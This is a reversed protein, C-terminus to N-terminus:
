RRQMEESLVILDVVVTVMEDTKLVGFFATPPRVKFDTMDITTECITRLGQDKHAMMTCIFQVEREEGAISLNGNLMFEFLGDDEGDSILEAGSSIFRIVPYQESRLAKEMDRNMKNRGSELSSVSMGAEIGTLVKPNWSRETQFWVKPLDANLQISTSVADWDHLTSSGKITVSSGPGIRVSDQHGNHSVPQLTFLFSLFFLTATWM